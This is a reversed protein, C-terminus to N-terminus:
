ECHVVFSLCVYVCVCVSLCNRLPAGADPGIVFTLSLDVDVMVNDATPCQQAPANYTIAAARRLMECLLLLLL